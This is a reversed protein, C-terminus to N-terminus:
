KLTQASVWGTEGTDTVIEVWGDRRRGTVRVPQGLRVSGVAAGNPRQYLEARTVVVKLPRGSAAGAGTGAVISGSADPAKCLVTVLASRAGARPEVVVRATRSLGVV